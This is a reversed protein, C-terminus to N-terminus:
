TQRGNPRAVSLERNLKQVTDEPTRGERIFDQLLRGAATQYHGFWRANPRVYAERLSDRTASFYGGNLRDLDPDDWAAEQAPQGGSTTFLGGQCDASTVWVLYDIAAERAPAQALLALGVGGLTPRSPTGATVPPPATFTLRHPFYGNRAYLSYGYAYGVYLLEDHSALRSFLQVAGEELCWTPVAAALEALRSLARVAVDHDVLQEQSPDFLIGGDQACLSLFTAVTSFVSLPVAVRGTTRALALVEDFTSPVTLGAAELLDARYASTLAAVDLPAAWTRGGYGYGEFAPGVTGAELTKIQEQSLFADLPEIWGHESAEGILPYDLAVLDYLGIYQDLQGSAFDLLSRPTWDLHVAPHRDSWASSTAVMPPHGRTHAWSLGRVHTM